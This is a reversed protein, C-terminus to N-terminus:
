TRAKLWSRRSRLAPELEQNLRQIARWCNAKLGRITGFSVLVYRSPSSQRPLNQLHLLRLKRAGQKQPPTQNLLLNMEHAQNIFLALM